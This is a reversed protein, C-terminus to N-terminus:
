LHGISQYVDSIQDLKKRMDQRSLYEPELLKEVQDIIVYELCNASRQTGRQMLGTVGTNVMENSINRCAEILADADVPEWFRRRGDAYLNREAVFDRLVAEDVMVEHDFTGYIRDIPECSPICSREPDALREAQDQWYSRQEAMDAGDREALSLHITTLGSFQDLIAERLCKLYAIKRQRERKRATDEERERAGAACATILAKADIPEFESTPPVLSETGPPGLANESPSESGAAASWGVGVILAALLGIARLTM